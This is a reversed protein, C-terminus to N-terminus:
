PATSEASRPDAPASRRPSIRSRRGAAVARAAIHIARHELAFPALHPRDPPPSRQDELLRHRREARACRRCDLDDLRNRQVLRDACRPARRLRDLDQSPRRTWRRLLPHVLQGILQAAAACRAIIAM